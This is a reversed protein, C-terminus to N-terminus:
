PHTSVKTQDSFGGFLFLMSVPSVMVLVYPVSSSCMRISPDWYAYAYMLKLKCTSNSYYELYNYKVISMCIYAYAYAYDDDRYLNM